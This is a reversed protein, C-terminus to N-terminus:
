HAATLKPPRSGASRNLAQRRQRGELKDTLKGYYYSMVIIMVFPVAAYALFGLMTQFSHQSHTFLWMAGSLLAVILFLGSVMGCAWVILIGVAHGIMAFFSAVGAVLLGLLEVAARGIARM